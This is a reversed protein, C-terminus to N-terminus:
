DSEVTARLFGAIESVAEKAQAMNDPFLNWAHCTDDHLSVQVPSGQATAEEHFRVTDGLLAEGSSAMALTPPLGGLNGYMPSVRSDRPDISGLYARRMIALSLPTILRDDPVPSVCVSSTKGVDLVPSVLILALPSDGGDARHAITTALALGGGASDGGVISSCPGYRDVAWEVASRADDFAAPFPHEPALRYDPVLVDIGTAEALAGAFPLYSRPNGLIYGGGHFWVIVAPRRDDPAAHVLLAPVSGVTVSSTTLRSPDVDRLMLEEFRARTEEISVGDGNLVANLSEEVSRLVERRAVADAEGASVDPTTATM